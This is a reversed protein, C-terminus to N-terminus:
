ETTCLAYIKIYSGTGAPYAPTVTIGRGAFLHSIPVHQNTTSVAPNTNYTYVMTRVVSQTNGVGNIGVTQGNMDVLVASITDGLYSVNGTPSAKSLTTITGNNAPYWNIELNGYTTDTTTIEDAKKMLMEIVFRDAKQLAVIHEGSLTITFGDV